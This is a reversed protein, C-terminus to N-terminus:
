WNTCVHLRRKTPRLSLMVGKPAISTSSPIAAFCDTSVLVGDFPTWSSFAFSMGAFFEAIGLEHLRKTTKESLVPLQGDKRDHGISHVPVVRSPEIIEADLLAKDLGQLALASKSPANPLVPLPFSPLTALPTPSRQHVEEESVAHMEADVDPETSIRKRKPAPKDEEVVDEDDESDESENQSLKQPLPTGTKRRKRREKKAKLYRGKAKTKSKQPSTLSISLSL